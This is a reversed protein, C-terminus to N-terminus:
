SPFLWFGCPVMDPSFNGSSGTSHQTQGLIVSVSASYPCTCQWSASYNGNSMDCTWDANHLMVVVEKHCDKYHKAKFHDSMICCKMPTVILTVRIISCVQRSHEAKPCHRHHGCRQKQTMGVFRCFTLLSWPTWIMWSHGPITGSGCSKWWLWCLILSKTTIVSTEKVGLFM